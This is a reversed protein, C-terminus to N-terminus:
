ARGALPRDAQGDERGDGLYREATRVLLQAGIPLAAEDFDFLPSHHPHHLNRAANASGVFAFCGPVAELFYSMDEGGMLPEPALVHDAGVVTAATERVFATMRPDNVTAPYGFEYHVTADGGFGRAVGQAIREIRGPLSQRLAADFSRVTGTLEVEPAIVNYRFGGHVTGITVVVPTTPAVERAAIAQLATIVHAAVLISDVTQHPAAGHGGRGIVRVVVRDTAAMLPGPRLAITGVPHDNLLHIGFAADVRPSELVGAEIMPKAGGPGEEAPQFILKVAGALSERRAVLCEAAGLLM